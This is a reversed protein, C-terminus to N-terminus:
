LKGLEIRNQEVERIFLDRDEPNIIVNRLIGKRLKISIFQMPWPNCWSQSFLSVGHRIEKIDALAITKIVKSFLEIEISDSNVIYTFLM